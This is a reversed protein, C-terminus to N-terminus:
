KHRKEVYEIMPKRQVSMKPTLFQEWEETSIVHVHRIRMYSDLESNITELSSPSLPETVIMENKDKNEGFVVVNGIGHNKVCEEIHPVNVFKGNSLKYNESIRGEYYLFDDNMSGSDGTKYWTKGEREVLVQSTAEEHNWYGLMVNPGSVQIEGDVIEVSVGDLIKGISEMNRPSEFHNVSVMPSTETCGYGECILYGYRTFFDKTEQNLKAGGTFIYLLKPGFLVHLLFPIAKRIVPKDYRCLRGKIADLVRPVLYLTSPQIQACEKIFDLRSSAIALKNEYFLTYYLECTQSYIHAWPLINLSTTTTPLNIFRKRIAEVNTIINENSLMVGKPKGTTGSTYILTSVPNIDFEMFSSVTDCPELTIDRQPISLDMNPGDSLLLKPECDNVIHQCYDRNQDHYMPVWIAGLSNTALNWAIWEFSNHGKFAVRDGKQINNDRLVERSHTVAKLLDGYSQWHWPKSVSPKSALFLFSPNHHLKPIIRSSLSM